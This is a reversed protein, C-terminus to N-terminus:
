DGREGAIGSYAFFVVIWLILLDINLHFFTHLYGSAGDTGLTSRILDAAIPNLFWLAVTIALAVLLVRAQGSQQSM